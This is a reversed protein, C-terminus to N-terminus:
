FDKGKTQYGEIAETCVGGNLHIKLIISRLFGVGYGFLQTFSAIVSLLGVRLDCKNRFMADVFLLLAYIILPM